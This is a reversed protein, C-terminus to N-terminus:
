GVPNSGEALLAKIVQQDEVLAMQAADQDVVHREVVLCAWVLPKLLLYRKRFRLTALITNNMAPIAQTTQQM